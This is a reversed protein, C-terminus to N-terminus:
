FVILMTTSVLLLGILIMTSEIIKEDFQVDSMTVIRDASRVRYPPSPLVGNCEGPCGEGNNCCGKNCLYLNGAEEYACFQTKSGDETTTSAYCQCDKIRNDGQCKDKKCDM